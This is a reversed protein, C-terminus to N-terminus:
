TVLWLHRSPFCLKSTSTVEGRRLSSPSNIQNGMGFLRILHGKTLLECLKWQITQTGQIWLPMLSCCPSPSGGKPHFGNQKTFKFSPWSLGFLPHLQLPHPQLEKGEGWWKAWRTGEGPLSKKRLQQKEYLLGYAFVVKLGAELGSLCPSSLGTWLSGWSVTQWALGLCLSSFLPGAEPHAPQQSLCPSQSKLNVQRIGRGKVSHNAGFGEERFSMPTLFFFFSDFAPYIVTHARFLLESFWPPAPPPLALEQIKHCIDM